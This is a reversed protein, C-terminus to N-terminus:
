RVTTSLIVCNMKKGLESDSNRAMKKQSNEASSESVEDDVADSLIEEVDGEENLDVSSSYIESNEYMVVSDNDSEDDDRHPVNEFNSNNRDSTMTEM